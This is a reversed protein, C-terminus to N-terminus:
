EEAPWHIAEVEENTTCAMVDAKLDRYTIHLQNSRVAAAAIVGRLDAATVSVVTNDATTWGISGGTIDLAYIAATIREYSKQDFDFNADNYPVPELEKADRIGKLESIKAAQVDALPPIYPPEPIFRGNVYIKGQAFENFYEEGEGVLQTDDPYEANAKAQLDELTKGHIGKLFTAKRKGSDDLIFLYTKEM